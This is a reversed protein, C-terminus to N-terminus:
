ASEQHLRKFGYIFEEEDIEADGTDDFFAVVHTIDDQSLGCQLSELVTRFEIITIEGSGDKDIIKFLESAAGEPDEDESDFIDGAMFVAFESFDILGDGSTDLLRAVDLMESDSIEIGFSHLVAALEPVTIEGDGDKDFLDFVSKLEDRQEPSLMELKKKNDEATNM